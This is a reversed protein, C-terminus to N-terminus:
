EEIVSSDRRGWTLQFMHERADAHSRTRTREALGRGCTIHATYNANLWIM